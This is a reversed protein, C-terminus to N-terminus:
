PSILLTIHITSKPLPVNEIGRKREGREAIQNAEEDDLSAFSSTAFKSCTKIKVKDDKDVVPCINALEDDLSGSKDNDSDDWTVMLSKKKKDGFYRKKKLWPCEVKMYTPKRCEFWIIENSEEKNKDYRRVLADDLFWNKHSIGAGAAAPYTSRELKENIQIAPIHAIKSWYKGNQGRYRAELLPCKRLSLIVLSSPLQDEPSSEFSPCNYMHLM